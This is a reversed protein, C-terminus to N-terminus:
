LACVESTARWDVIYISNSWSWHAILWTMEKFTQWHSDSRHLDSVAFCTTIVSSHSMKCFHIISSPVSWCFPLTGLSWFTSVTSIFDSELTFLTISCSLQGCSDQCQLWQLFEPHVALPNVCPSRLSMSSTINTFFETNVSVRASIKHYQFILPYFTSLQDM